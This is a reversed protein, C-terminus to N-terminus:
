LSSAIRHKKGRAAIKPLNQTKPPNSGWVYLWILLVSRELACHGSDAYIAADPCLSRGAGPDRHGRRPQQVQAIM